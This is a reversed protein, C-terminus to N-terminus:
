KGQTLMALAADIVKDRSALAYFGQRKLAEVAEDIKEVTGVTVTISQRRRQRWRESNEAKRKREEEDTAIEAGHPNGQSLVFDRLIGSIKGRPVTEEETM